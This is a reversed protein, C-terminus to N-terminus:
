GSISIKTMFPLCKFSYISVFCPGRLKEDHESGGCMMSTKITAFKEYLQGCRKQNFVTVNLARLVNSSEMNNMTKGWGSVECTKNDSFIQNPQPLQIPQVQNTFNLPQELKILALDYETWLNDYNKYLPHVYKQFATL